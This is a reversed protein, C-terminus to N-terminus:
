VGSNMKGHRRRFESPLMGFEHMFCQRFYIMSGIGVSWAAESVNCGGSSLLEKAKHMRLKRIFENASFGTLSKLKRYLTSNSMNMRDALFSVDLSESSINDEVLGTVKKLFEKDVENFGTEADNISASSGISSAFQSVLRSRSEMINRIRSKLLEGTFPKVLYSDAGAKYGESRDDISDKATLLILPIHSFRMDQKVMRCLALGDLVPMMIDSIILDPNCEVIRSYAESGNHAEYVSFGDGSLVDAIYSCIDENDEAVVVIRGDPLVSEGGTHVSAASPTPVKNEELPLVVRFNSGHGVESEVDITGRHLSVLSKVLSLGIGTGQVCQGDKVQYYREFIHPIQDRSIGCGTDSVIIEASATGSVTLPYMNLCIVGSKTFKFANSLLNNLIITVIESDFVGMVGKTINMRFKVSPNTKSEFFVNGASEVM